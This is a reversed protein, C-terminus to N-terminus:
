WASDDDDYSDDDLVTMMVIFIMMMMAMMTMISMLIVTMMMMAMMTMITMLIVTMMMMAMMTMISMLILTMMMMISDQICTAFWSTGPTTITLIICVIKESILVCTYLLVTM